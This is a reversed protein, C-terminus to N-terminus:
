TWQCHLQILFSTGGCDAEEWPSYFYSEKKAFANPVWPETVHDHRHIATHPTMFSCSFLWKHTSILPANSPNCSAIQLHQTRLQVTTHWSQLWQQWKPPFPPAGFCFGRWTDSAYTHHPAASPVPIIWDSSLSAWPLGWKERCSGPLLQHHTPTLRKEGIVAIPGSTIAKVQAFPPETLINPFFNNESPTTICQFLSGLSTSSDSDRSTNLVHPSKDSLSM